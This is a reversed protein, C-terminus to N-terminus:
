NQYRGIFMNMVKKNMNAKESGFSEDVNNIREGTPLNGPIM